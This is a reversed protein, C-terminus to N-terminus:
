IQINGIQACLVESDIAPHMADEEGIMAARTYVCLDRGPTM